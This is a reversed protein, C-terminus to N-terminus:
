GADVLHREFFARYKDPIPISRHTSMDMTVVVIEAEFAPADPERELYGRHRFTVSKEGVRLIDVEMGLDQGFRVPRRYDIEAHAAPWGVKEERLAVWYPFGQRDFFDEFAQHCYHLFRPYYVMQAHDEDGFRVRLTTRFTM